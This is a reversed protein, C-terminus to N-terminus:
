VQDIALPESGDPRDSLLTVPTMEPVGDTISVKLKVTRTVSEALGPCVAVLVRLILILFHIICM